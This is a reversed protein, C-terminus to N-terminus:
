SPGEQAPPLERRVEIAAKDSRIGEYRPHRLRGDPTWESFGVAVVLESRVWHAGKVRRAEPDAFPCESAQLTAFTARLHQLEKDDFGTGVRGAYRLLGEDDYYGVLLAGLGVRSGSPDTWGGVVLEQSATCKLKRWDPTRGARYTSDAQKAILGEWGNRCAEDLLAQPDGEIISVPVVNDAAGQLAQALLRHRDVLPLGTTDRGLLHLLDFAHYQPRTDPDSRQLLSFSTRGKEFAVLEGDITFNDVPLATLSAVVDPFRRTFPLHNRSWLEVETGNRVALCRLGDLKREYLWGPQDLVRRDEPMRLPQALMPPQWTAHKSDWHRGSEDAKVEELSRGSVASDPAETTIDRSPDAFEDKRKVMIWAEKEGAPSTRTLSWGGRLKTGELWVSLHGAAVADAVAVPKGDKETLNRYPGQDWVIVAGAGYERSPITGEFTAYDLPHDEVHVALRKTVPKYSPGKPVAWSILVGDAEFRVDYHLRRAAHKQVVFRPSSGIESAGAAGAAGAPQGSPEATREFNRRDRYPELRDAPL